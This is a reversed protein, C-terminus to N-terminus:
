HALLEAVSNETEDRITGKRDNWLNWERNERLKARVGNIIAQRQGLAAINKYRQIFLSDWTPGVPYRNFYLEYGNVQGTKVWGEFQPIVYGNVYDIYEKASNKYEYPIIYYAEGDEIRDANKQWPLDAAVTMYPDALKLGADDLGGPHAQEEKNWAQVASFSHFQLVVMGDWVQPQRYWSYFIRFATLQGKARMARLRPAMSTKLYTRFAARDLRDTRYSIVLSKPGDQVQLDEASPTQAMAPAAVLALLSAAMLIVPRYM